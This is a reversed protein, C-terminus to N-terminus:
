FVEASVTAKEIFGRQFEWYAVLDRLPRTWRKEHVKLLQRERDRLVQLRRADALPSVLACQVRIFEARPDGREELWDAFILRLNDDDDSSERIADRFPAEEIAQARREAALQERFRVRKQVKHVRQASSFGDVLHRVHAKLTGFFNPMCSVRRKR